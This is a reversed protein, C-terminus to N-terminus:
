NLLRLSVGYTRPQGPFQGRFQNLNDDFYFPQNFYGVAYDEDLCNSCWLRVDWKGSQEGLGLQLGLLGYGSQQEQIDYSLYHKDRYSWNANLKVELQESVPRTYDLGFSGAWEPALTLERGAPPTRDPGPPPVDDGYESDLWTVSASVLLNETLAYFTDAEFGYIDATSANLVRFGTGSFVSFQNDELENYFLALNFVGRGGQIDTKYGLEWTDVYETQYEVPELDAYGTGNGLQLFTQVDASNQGSPQGGGAEPDMGLGGSKFGRSYGGYVQASDNLFYQLKIDYTWEDDDYKLDDIDPGAINAGLFYGGLMYQQLYESYDEVDSFLLNQRDMTKEEDTYRVGVVLTVQETLAASGHAFAAITETELDHLVDGITMGTTAWNGGGLFARLQPETLVGGAQEPWFLEWIGAQDPGADFTRLQEYQEYAYYLGTVYDVEGVLEWDFSGSVNFEQSVSDVDYSERLHGIDVPGFDFDGESRYEWNRLGTLSQLNVSDFEYALELVLGEEQTNNEPQVNNQNELDDPDLNILDIDTNFNAQAAERYYDNLPGGTLSMDRQFPVPNGFCCVEEVDSVDVILNASFRETPTWAFSIKGSLTDYGSYDDHEFLAETFGDSEDYLVALRAALNEGLSGTVHGSFRRRDYDGLTLEAGYGFEEEPANSTLTMAGATTNKGFLTGQPGRLIEVSGMDLMGTLVMGPRSRYVGDVYVGVSGEFAPQAAITGMGRIVVPTGNARNYGKVVTLSPVLRQLDVIDYVNRDYMLEQSVATIALPVEQLSQERKQANVLVEELLLENGQASLPASMLLCPVFVLSVVSLILRMFKSM